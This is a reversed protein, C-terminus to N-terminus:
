GNPGLKGSGAYAGAQSQTYASVAAQTFRADLFVGSANTGTCDVVGDGSGCSLAYYAQGEASWVSINAPLTANGGTANWYEYFANEAFPCSVGASGAVGYGCQDPLSQVGFGPSYGSSPASSGSASNAVAQRAATSAAQQVAKREAARNAAASARAAAAVRGSAWSTLASTASVSSSGGSAVSTLPVFASQLSTALPQLQAINGPSPSSLTASVSALYGAEDTLAQQAQQSLQQSGAPVTLVSMAGRASIVAQQAQNAASAAASSDTGRLQQLATSLTTNAAVVSAFATQL